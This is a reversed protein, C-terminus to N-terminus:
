RRLWGPLGRRGAPGLEACAFELMRRGMTERCRIYADLLAQADPPLTGLVAQYQPELEALIEELAAYEPDRQCRERIDWYTKCVKKDNYSKM